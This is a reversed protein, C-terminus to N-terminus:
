HVKQLVLRVMCFITVILHKSPIVVSVLLSTSEIFDENIGRAGSLYMFLYEDLIQAFYGSLKERGVERLNHASRQQTMQGGCSVAHRVQDIIVEDTHFRLGEEKGEVREDGYTPKQRLRVSLDFSIRDGKKM